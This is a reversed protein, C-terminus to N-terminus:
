KMTTEIKSAISLAACPDKEEEQQVELKAWISPIRCTRTAAVQPTETDAGVEL